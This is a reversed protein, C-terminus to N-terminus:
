FDYDIFPEHVVKAQNKQRHYKLRNLEKNREKADAFYDLGDFEKRMSVIKNHLSKDEDKMIDYLPKFFQEVKVPDFEDQISKIINVEPNM